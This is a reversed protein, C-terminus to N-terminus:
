IVAAGTEHGGWRKAGKASREEKTVDMEREEGRRAARQKRRGGGRTRQGRGREDASARMCTKARARGMYKSTRTAASSVCVGSMCKSGKQRQSPDLELLVRAFKFSCACIMFTENFSQSSLQQTFKSVGLWRDLARFCLRTSLLFCSALLLALRPPPFVSLSSFYRVSTRSSLLFLLSRAAEM